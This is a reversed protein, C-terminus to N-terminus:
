FQLYMSVMESATYYMGVIDVITDVRDSRIMKHFIKRRQNPLRRM